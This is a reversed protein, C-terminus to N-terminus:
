RRNMKDVIWKVARPKLGETDAIIGYAEYVKHANRRRLAYYQEMVRMDREVDSAFAGM